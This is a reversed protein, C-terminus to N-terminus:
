QSPKDETERIIIPRIGIRETDQGAMLQIKDRTIAMAVILQNVQAKSMDKAEIARM